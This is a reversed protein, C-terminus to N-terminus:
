SLFEFHRLVIPVNYGMFVAPSHTARVRITCASDEVCLALGLTCGFLDHLIQATTLDPDLAAIAL